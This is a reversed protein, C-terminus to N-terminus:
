LFGIVGCDSDTFFTVEKRRIRMNGRKKKGIESRLSMWLFRQISYVTSPANISGFNKSQSGIRSGEFFFPDAIRDLDVLIGKSGSRIAIRDESGGM